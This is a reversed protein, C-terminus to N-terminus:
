WYRCSYRTSQVFAQFFLLLLQMLNLTVNENNHVVFMADLKLIPVGAGWPNFPHVDM